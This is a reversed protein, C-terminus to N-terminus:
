AFEMGTMLYVIGSKDLVIGVQNGIRQSVFLARSMMALDGFGGRKRVIMLKM